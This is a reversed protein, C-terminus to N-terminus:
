LEEHAKCHFRENVEFRRAGEGWAGVGVAFSRDGTSWGNPRLSIKHLWGKVISGEKIPERDHSTHFSDTCFGCGRWLEGYGLQEVYAVAADKLCRHGVFRLSWIDKAPAGVSAFPAVAILLLLIAAKQVM